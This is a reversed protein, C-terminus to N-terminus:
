LLLLAALTSVALALLGIGAIFRFKGKGILLAIAFKLVTNSLVGITMAQAAVATDLGPRKAIMFTLTDVDTFGVLAATVLIGTSGFRASVWDLIYLAAQFAMVM